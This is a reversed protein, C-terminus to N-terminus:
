KEIKYKKIKTDNFVYRFPPLNKPTEWKNVEGSNKYLHELELIRGNLEIVKKIRNIYGKFLNQVLNIPKSYWEELIFVKLQEISNPNRRKVRPKLIAWLDEIPSALDPSNPPNQIQGSECFLKNLLHINSKSKHAQAGDQEFILDVQSKKNSKKWIRKLFFSPKVM